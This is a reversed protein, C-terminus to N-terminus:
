KIINLMRSSGTAGSQLQLMYSGSPLQSVDLPHMIVGPNIFDDFILRGQLDYFKLTMNRSVPTIFNLTTLSNAPNPFLLVQVDSSTIAQRIDPVTLVEGLEGNRSIQQLRLGGSGIAVIAGGRCDTIMKGVSTGQRNFLLVDDDDGWMPNCEADVRQAYISSFEGNIDRRDFWAYIASNDDSVVGHMDFQISDYSSVRRGEEEWLVEGDLSVSQVKPHQEVNISVHNWNIFFENESVRLIESDLYRNVNRYHTSFIILGQHEGWVYNGESDYRFLSVHKQEDFAVESSLIMGGRCDTSADLLDIRSNVIHWIGNEGWLRNGRFDIKQVCFSDPRYFSIIMGGEGDTIAPTDGFNLRPSPIDDIVPVGEESWIMEGDFSIRQSNLRAPYFRYDLYPIIAGDEGDSVISLPSSGEDLNSWSRTIIPMGERGWLLEGDTNIKQVRIDYTTDEGSIWEAFFTVMLIGPESTLLELAYESRNAAPCVDIWDDWPIEGARDVWLCYARQIELWGGTKALFVGGLSDSIIEGSGVNLAERPDNSWQAVAIGAFLMMVFFLFGVLACLWAPRVFAKRDAVASSIRINLNNALPQRFSFTFM